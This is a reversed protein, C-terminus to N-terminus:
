LSSEIIENRIEELNKLFWRGVFVVEEENSDNGSSASDDDSVGIDTSNDRLKLLDAISMFEVNDSKNVKKSDKRNNNSLKKNINGYEPIDKYKVVEWIPGPCHLIATESPLISKDIDNQKSHSQLFKLWKTNNKFSNPFKMNPGLNPSNSNSSNRSFKTTSVGEPWWGLMLTLRPQQININSSPKATTEKMVQKPMPIVGHLLKGDFTLLRNPKPYCLWGESAISNPLLTQDTILTPAFLDDIVEIDDNGASGNLYLVSSLLPHISNVTSENLGKEKLKKEDLDFHLQHGQSSETDRQHVWFEVSKLDKIQKNPFTKLLLPKLYLALDKVINSSLPSSEKNSKSKKNNNMNLESLPINYSFFSDTPYGHEIWFPSTPAFAAQLTELFEEPLVNDFAVVPDNKKHSKYRLINNKNNTSFVSTSLKYKFGLYQLYDDADKGKGNQSLLLALEYAAISKDNDSISKDQFKNELDIIQESISLINCDKNSIDIGEFEEEDSGFSTYYKGGEEDGDESYNDDSGSGFLDPNPDLSFGGFENDDDEPEYLSEDDDGYEEEFYMGGHVQDYIEDNDEDFYNMEEDKDNDDSDNDSSQSIVNNKELQALFEKQAIRYDNEEAAASYNFDNNHNNSLNNEDRRIADELKNMYDNDHYENLKKRKEFKLYGIKQYGFLSM